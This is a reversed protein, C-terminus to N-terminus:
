CMPMLPSQVQAVRYSGKEDHVEQGTCPPNFVSIFTVEEYAEFLHDDHQDLAYLTGPTINFREMTRLDTLTGRGAICYCAEVHHLYHWHQPPGVPVITRHLSFGVKDDALLYRHSVFGKNPCHVERMNGSVDNLTIVKM